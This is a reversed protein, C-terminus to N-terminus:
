KKAPAPEVQGRNSYRTFERASMEVIAGAAHFERNYVMGVLLKAKVPAASTASRTIM